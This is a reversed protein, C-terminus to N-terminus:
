VGRAELEAIDEDSLRTPRFVSRNLAMFGEQFHTRAVATWRADNFPQGDANPQGLEDLQRLLREEMIKYRNVLAVRVESQPTYGGVPLGAHETDPMM